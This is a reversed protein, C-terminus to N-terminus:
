RGAEQPLVPGAGFLRAANRYAIKEAVDLPLQALWQRDFDIIQEYTEWRSPVWTDSGITFRDPYELFLDRWAPALKGGPAIEAERIAIDAWVNPHDALLRAVTAPPEILGAHAWLIRATPQDALIISVAQADAHVHLFLGREVALRTVARVVPATAATGTLHFEGIGQYIPTKLRETLYPTVKPMQFWNASNVDDYYPRLIPVVRDPALGHLQRTGDDPSSSVLARAVGARELKALVAQPPLTAWVDRSYHLHTDFIPLRTPSATPPPNTPRATPSITPPPNTPAVTPPLTPQVTPSPTIPRPTPPLTPPLVTPSLTPSPQAVLTPTATALLPSPSPQALAIPTAADPVPQSM